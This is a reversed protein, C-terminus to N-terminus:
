TMQQVLVEGTAVTENFTRGFTKVVMLRVGCQGAPVDDYALLQEDIRMRAAQASSSCTTLCAGLQQPLRGPRMTGVQCLENLLMLPTKSGLYGFQAAGSSGMGLNGFVGTLGSAAPM